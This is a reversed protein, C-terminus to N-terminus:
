AVPSVPAGTEKGLGELLFGAVADLQDPSRLTPAHGVGQLTLGRALVNQRQMEQLSQATLLDSTEGRLILVPECLSAYGQWLVGEAGKLVAADQKTIPEAIRLDYHKVWQGNRDNFVHRTLDQWGADDHPGFGESVNKVYEIAQEFSDFTEPRGVYDAIRALGSANLSPGIDNLVVRGLGLTQSADLGFEGRPPRMTASVALGAALGMGILGGMSTGVWDLRSPNLRAILVLMDAVYQPIVYHKPDILWDSRGRGVIDPCVVRYHAAMRAALPDFDRGNRTLGHVCLLVQDNDPDGWEWYAMRHMGAPSACMVYSLRPAQMSSPQQFDSM